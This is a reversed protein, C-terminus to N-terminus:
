ESAEAKPIDEVRAWLYVWRNALLDGVFHLEGKWEAFRKSTGNARMWDAFNWVTGSMGLPLDAGKSLQVDDLTVHNSAIFAKSELKRKIRTFLDRQEVLTNAIM